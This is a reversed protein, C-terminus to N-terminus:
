EDKKGKPKRRRRRSKRPKDTKPKDGRSQDGGQPQSNTGSGEGGGPGQAAVSVPSGQESSGSGAEAAPQGSKNRKRGGRRRRKKKKTADEKSTEPKDAQPSVAPQELGQGSTSESRGADAKPGAAAKDVSEGGSSGVAAEIAKDMAEGSPKEKRPEPKRRKPGDPDYEYNLCCMLRGCLGSLKCTNLVLDQQKAMKISIPAFGKLWTKCCLEQGCVGFGGIMRAADRVGIQRLEIRTRFKSALDKVLERFDIRTDAVFYFIFRKRDLTVDAYLLKMPLERAKIREVAYERAESKVKENEEEQRIDVETVKRLVPKLGKEPVNLECSLKAVQGINIGLDSEVVVRDYRSLKIDGACFCYTKGSNPFRIGVVNAKDKCEPRPEADDDAVVGIDGKTDSDEPKGSDEGADDGIDDCADDRANGNSVDGAKVEASDGTKDETKDETDGVASDETTAETEVEANVETKDALSEDPNENINENEAM